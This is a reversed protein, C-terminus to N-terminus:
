SRCKNNQSPPPFEDCPYVCLLVCGRNGGIAFLGLFTLVGNDTKYCSCVINYCTCTVGCDSSLGLPDKRNVPNNEVYVFPNIGGRLGIPDATIYRGIEPKYYRHYNYSLGTESDYYQGPFRFNNEVVNVLIQAKGFPTYAAKWAINGTSDTLVQPTGLHDNHYYYIAEGPRIMALLRDGIYVYEALMQGSVNTEAIIHGSSDYHFVTTEGGAVKKVRQGIGNFTYQGIQTSGDWVATLQNLIDYVYTRSNEAITNGNADSTFTTTATGTIEMLVNSGNEYTYTSLPDLPATRTVDVSNLISTINGNADYGYTRYLVSGAIISSIRYQNDYGQTLSLNNGYLLGTIGGFPLYSISSALTKPSGSVTTGVQAIRQAGDMAYTITRGTPYTISTLVNNKNYVYQTTYTIGGITKDERIMNGQADYAFTYTGSPDVRGTLRGAGCTVSTSDYTNTIDQTSDSFHTVALRNLADYSYTITNGNADTTQVLNGAGDYSHTATGTDPSITQYKKAFDDFHYQTTNGNPDTVLTPNDQTDYGYGIPNTFPQTMTSKRSLTDYAFSTTNNRPDTIATVNGRGDYGYVTTTSDPNVITSLRNYVDYTYDLSKKLTGQPDLIDESTRNGQDDYGYQIRNNLNDRIEILRNGLNYTFTISNGEPYTVSSLNGHTDYSYQTVANTAQNTITLVRNRQDYTKRTVVGNPDTITGVNGNADYEAFLTTQGLANTISSLRGRNNGQSSTNPYYDFTTIDSM